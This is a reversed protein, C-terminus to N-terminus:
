TDGEDAINLLSDLEDAALTVLVFRLEGNELLSRTSEVIQSLVVKQLISVKFLFGLVNM